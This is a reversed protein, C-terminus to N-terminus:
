RDALQDRLGILMGHEARSLRGLLELEMPVAAEAAAEALRRGKETLVLHRSRGDAPNRERRLLGRHQLGDVLITLKPATLSLASLLQKPAVPKNSLLLMLLSFEVKRLDMPTGIHREFAEYSTVAARALHFGVIDALPGLRLAGAAGPRGDDAEDDAAAPRPEVGSRM